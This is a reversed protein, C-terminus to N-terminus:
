GEGALSRSVHVVVSSAYSQEQRACKSTESLYVYGEEKRKVLTIKKLRRAGLM